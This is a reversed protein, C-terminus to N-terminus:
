HRKLSKLSGVITGLKIKNEMRVMMKNEDDTVWFLNEGIDKPKGDKEAHPQIVVTAIKGLKTSLEERRLVDVTIVLNENEHTMRFQIKKGPKLQFARLYWLSSFVNQSFAPMEWDQKKEEVKKDRTIKKDWFFMRGKEWDHVAQANRLLNSEKVNQTYSYPLLTDFDVLTEAYDDVKYVMEFLSVTRAIGHFRYAKKGNVQVFPLVQMILEGATIGFYSIDLVVEEGVNFPDVFPRRGVFGEPDEFEPQRSEVKEQKIGKTVKIFPKKKALKKSESKKNNRKKNEITTDSQIKKTSSDSEKLVEDSSAIPEVTPQIESVKIAQEYEQNELVKEANEFQLIKSACGAITTLILFVFSLRLLRPKFFHKILRSSINEM